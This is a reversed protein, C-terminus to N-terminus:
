TNNIFFSLTFIFQLENYVHILVANKSCIIVYMLWLRLLVSFSVIAKEKSWLALNLVDNGAMLLFFSAIPLNVEMWYSKYVISNTRPIITWPVVFLSCFAIIALAFLGHIILGKKHNVNNGKREENEHADESCPVDNVSIVSISDTNM